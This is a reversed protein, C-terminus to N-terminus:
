PPIPCRALGMPLFTRGSIQRIRQACEESGLARLKDAQATDVLKMDALMQVVNDRSAKPHGGAADSGHV